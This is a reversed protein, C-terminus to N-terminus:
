ANTEKLQKYHPVAIQTEQQQKQMHRDLEKAIPILRNSNRAVAETM